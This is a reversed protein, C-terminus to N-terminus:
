TVRQRAKRGFANYARTRLDEMRHFELKRASTSTAGRQSEAYGVNESILGVVAEAINLQRILAPPTWVSAAAANLHTAATSGAAGRIVVCQRPAFIEAGSNHAALPSGDWARRVILNNGAIKTILMTEGDILITENVAFAAGNPVGVLNGSNQATLAGTTAAGTDSYIKDTVLMVESDVTVLNGVGIAASNSIALATGTTDSLASTITGAQTQTNNYGFIGTIQVVRQYTVGGGFAANHQLNIEILNYPPGWDPRLLYDTPAFTVGANVVSTVSILEWYDLWLRWARPLQPNPWDFTRTAQLPWFRRALFGEISRAGADILRDIQANDRATEQVDLAAKVDERTCYTPQPWTMPSSM